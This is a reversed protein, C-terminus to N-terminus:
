GVEEEEAEDEVELVVGNEGSNNVERTIKERIVNRFLAQLVPLKKGGEVITTLSKGLGTTFFQHAANNSWIPEGTLSFM